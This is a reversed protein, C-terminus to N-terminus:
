NFKLHPRCRYQNPSHRNGLGERDIGQIAVDRGLQLGTLAQQFEAPDLSDKIDMLEQILVDFRAGVLIKIADLIRQIETPDNTLELSLRLNEIAGNIFNVQKEAAASIASFQQTDLNQIALREGLNLGTLAQQYEEPSLTERIDELENRLIAFRGRTLVKIADLIQQIETPDDTLQLSLRLNEISGNIFNVQEQAAASIAGFKETDLNQIALQEGLNLGQLAQQYEGPKLTERIDELEQRLIAFRGQTLVKIADLISQIEAPDDTLQLSLRLNEISTNIFAVQSEAEASIVAFKETDIAELAVQKGLELGRLAQDFEEPKMNEEIDTLEQILVDFRKATLIKIADLIQQSKTPDDTLELSLRLNEIAGNILGVQRQAAQSIVEFKETDLNQLALQEGLNIGDLAQEFEEPKLSDRIQELEERLVDFRAMVLVKIADLIQQQETPDSTLQLSLRLNEINRNIFAIQKEAEQSILDFKETDLNKLTLQEGLNLGKLTQQYEEPSLSTRISELENRLIDFRGRTLIKIADLIQQQATPDDTLQLSLRLNEISGNILNVQKEAEQSILDFKETDLNELALQEALNLGKLAQQYEEPKLSERIAELEERLIDFRGRTLTKIADLIQQRQTPDDTLQFALRLNEIDKNIFNVQRQADESITTFKETDLKELAVQEGLNIGKLAREYEGTDLSGKINELEDRLIKFRAITLTRIADLISQQEASDDTLELSFRLNEINTNIADVQKQAEASIASFKETDLNQLALQEGLNLGELAQEYEETTLTDRVAELEKRLADFRSSTVTKITDLIQQIEAPDDTLQLSTRLNDLTGNIFETPTEIATAESIETDINQIAVQKGLELGELSQEFIKPDLSEEIDKLEQILIDFRAGVLM